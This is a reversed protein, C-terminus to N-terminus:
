TKSRSPQGGTLASGTGQDPRRGTSSVMSGQVSSPFQSGHLGPGRVGSGPLQRPSGLLLRVLGWGTIAAMTLAMLCGAVVGILGILVAGQGPQWLPTAVLMFVALAGSWAFATWAIWRGARPVHRRLVTWQAVGISLLLVLGALVGLALVAGVPWATLRDGLAAPTLGIAWALAAGLATRVIWDRARLRRLERGLVHAQAAGLVAGEGAGASVLVLIRLPEPLQDAGLLVALVPVLFGATEGLFTAVTWRRWVSV